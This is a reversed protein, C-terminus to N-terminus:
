SVKTEGFLLSPPKNVSLPFLTTTFPVRVASPPVVCSIVRCACCDDLTEIFIGIAIVVGLEPPLPLPPTPPRSGPLPLALAFQCIAPMSETPPIGFLVVTQALTLGMPPPASSVVCMLLAIASQGDPCTTCSTAPVNVIESPLKTKTLLLMVNRPEPGAFVM